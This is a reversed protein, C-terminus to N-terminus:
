HRHIRKSKKRTGVGKAVAALRAAYALTGAVAADIKRPSDPNEKGIQMGSRSPRKRANLVHRTLADEGSHSFEGGETDVIATHFQELAQVIQRSRGGTMWWEIPHERSAKVKLRAGYKSEWRAVYTEWKAPDAFFAVVDYRKFALDIATEVAAVPVRWKTGEPGEPQEWVGLEFTHGDSIRCGILATADTVGRARSRSGDFGLAIQEKDSVIKTVDLRRAWQDAMVWADRASQAQNLFYRRSDQPDSRPDWIEDILRRVDMVQFFPGYVDALAARLAQEDALDVDAEAERHDFLLRARKMKGSAIKKALAHTAEAVSDEGPLYMTSTELSWPSASKRKAMNRRVTRYMNRLEPLTYLHTEDFVTFTEKGGDKAANSATSPRIEGGGPIITRTIGAADRPLGESLPGDTLNYYVNDYTNGTQTEETALCRIFPYTVHRGMPEGPVYEYDFDRWTYREGGKAFGAFRCPGMAEFLTFRGAHGSKDRGKPRSIFASDYLRRGAVDVAYADVVMEALEDDLEVEQGQVDGPGHVTFHEMWAVSLWGLSRARDHDPARVIERPM